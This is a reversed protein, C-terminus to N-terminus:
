LTHCCVQYNLCNTPRMFLYYSSGLYAALVSISRGPQHAGGCFDSLIKLLRGSSEMELLPLTSLLFSAILVSWFHLSGSLRAGRHTLSTPSELPPLLLPWFQPRSCTSHSEPGPRLSFSLGFWPRKKASDSLAQSPGAKTITVESGIKSCNTGWRKPFFCSPIIPYNRLSELLMKWFELLEKRINLCASKFLKIKYQSLAKKKGLFNKLKWSVDM